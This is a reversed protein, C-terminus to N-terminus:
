PRSLVGADRARVQQQGIGPQGGRLATEAAPEDLGRYSLSLLFGAVAGDGGVQRVHGVGGHRPKRHCGRGEGAHDVRGADDHV